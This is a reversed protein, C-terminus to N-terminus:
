EHLAGAVAALLAGREQAHEWHWRRKAAEWAAIKARRLLDGSEAWRRLGEALSAPQGPPYLLAGPGLDLALVRQGPTDTFAVALGGLIYTFAKNSLCIAHNLVDCPELALGVDYGRSLEVMTDPPAPEHHVILLAEAVENALRRLEELYGPIARGRVHMECPAKSLGIARVADELGRNPGITQSFWYLRLAHGGGPEFDPERAPLPFTNHITIPLVGYKREYSSAIGGSAATLFAAGGLVEAEIREVLRHSLDAEPGPSQEASHFDELDLAFPVKHRRAAASAVALGCGTCGYYLDVPERVAAALLESYV